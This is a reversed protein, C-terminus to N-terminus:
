DNELSKDLAVMHEFLTKSTPLLNEMDVKGAVVLDKAYSLSFGSYKSQERGVSKAFPTNRTFTTEPKIILYEGKKGVKKIEIFTAEEGPVFNKQDKFKSNYYATKDDYAVKHCFLKGHKGIFEHSFKTTKIIAKM